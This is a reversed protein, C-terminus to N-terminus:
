SQGRHFSTVPFLLKVELEADDVDELGLVRVDVQWVGPHHPHRSSVVVVDPAVVVLSGIVVVDVEVDVQLVGPQNPQLSSAVVLELLVMVVVGVAVDVFVAWSEEVVQLVGPQNPHLSGIVVECM